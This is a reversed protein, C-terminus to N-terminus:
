AGTFRLLLYLLLLHAPYFLRYCWNFARSRVGRHGNYLFLLPVAAYSGLQLWTRKRFARSIIALADDRSLYTFVVYYDLYLTVILFLLLLRVAQKKKDGKGSFGPAAGYVAGKGTYRQLLYFALVLLVGVYHYSTHFHKALFGIGAAAAASVAARLLIGAASLVSKQPPLPQGNGTLLRGAPRLLVHETILCAACGALLTFIVNNKEPAFVTGSMFLDYPVESLVALASLRLMYRRITGKLQTHLCAEAAMFTYLVFATRGICRLLPPDGLFKLATHDTLMTIMAILKLIFHTMPLNYCM